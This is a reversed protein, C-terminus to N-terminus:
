GEEVMVAEVAPDDVPASPWDALALVIRAKQVGEAAEAERRLLEGVQHTWSVESNLEPKHHSSSWRQRLGERIWYWHAPPASMWTSVFTEPRIASLIPVNVFDNGGEGTQNILTFFQQGDNVMAQLLRDSQGLLLAVAAAYRAEDLHQWVRGFAAATNELTWFQYGGHGSDIRRDFANALGPRLELLALDGTEVLRDIYGTSAKEADAVSEGTIGLSAMALRVSCAHALEGPVKIELKDFQQFLRRVAEEVTENALSRWDWLVRWPPLNAPPSVLSSGTFAAAILTSDFVGDFLMQKLLQDPLIQNELSITYREMAAVFPPKESGKPDRRDAMLHLMSRHERQSLDSPGLRGERVELSLATLLAAIEKVRDPHDKAQDGIAVVLREVDSMVHRLVRLSEVKSERFLGLILDRFESPLKPFAAAFDDYATEVQPFARVLQGFVKEQQTLLEDTLKEHHALVVVRSKHHEVYRNIVGLLETPAIKSRELDDFVITRDAAVDDKIFANALQAPIQGWPIGFVSAGQAQKAADKAFAQAPHMAAFVAAYIDTATQLGFLSVYYRKNEPIVAKVQHTKGVGWAGIVLVAYGPKEVSQYFTLYDSLASM